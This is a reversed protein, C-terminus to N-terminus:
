QRASEPIRWIFLCLLLAMAVLLIRVLGALPVLLLTVAFSAVVLVVARRKVRREM